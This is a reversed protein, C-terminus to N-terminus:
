SGPNEIAKVQPNKLMSLAIRRRAKDVELVTVEVKQQVKVVDAPRKVFHDALQSIHVLGDQHVGIDVFAGFNTVNTIVGPLRMGPKLQDINTIGAAFSFVEFRDRPDRGPKGLEQIIDTLTPLGAKDSIYNELTIKRRLEESQMLERVSCQLDKAMQKVTTYNEPHIASSDLPDEADHIRLFGAAQEFAKPGLRPVKRLEKRSKFPGNENRYEVINKSLAPGLGSVYTLIQKSATNVEVGVSNVCSIVTDDLSQKLKGQDVDHQYQGVGISQPDIKVLEALPDMLRRGISISGRVTIDQDPFEERAVESASYISAGSENVSVIAITDALKLERIFAETERGATGNGIAIAEIKFQKVLDVVTKKAEEAQKSSLTPFITTHHLLKGQPDLCVVKCGTRYGPDIALVTKQGLPPSMLLEHLNRTFVQIAEADARAKIEQRIDTEISPALLRQYSDEMALIVQDSAENAGKVYNQFLIGLAKDAPPRINIKLYEETEGRFVALVRHSPM